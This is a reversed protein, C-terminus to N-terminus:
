HSRCSSCWSRRGSRSPCRRATPSCRSRSRSRRSTRAAGPSFRTPKATGDWTAVLRREETAAIARHEAGHLRLTAGRLITALLAAVVVVGAVSSWPAPVFWLVAPALVAGALLLRERAGAVGTRRLLPGLSAALRALGRVLPLRHVLEPPQLMRGERLSGDAGAFAWFRESVIVVGNPRAMGGLRPLAVAADARALLQETRV